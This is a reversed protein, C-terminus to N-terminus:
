NRASYRTNAGIEQFTTPQYSPESGLVNRTRPTSTPLRGVLLNVIVALSVQAVAKLTASNVDTSAALNRLM